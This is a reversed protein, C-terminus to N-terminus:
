NETLAERDGRWRYRGRGIKVIEGKALLRNVASETGAKPFKAKGSLWGRQELIKHLENPTWIRNPTERMVERVAALGLPTSPAATDRESVAPAVGDTKGGLLAELTSLAAEDREREHRATEEVLRNADIRTRLTEVAEGLTMDKLENM